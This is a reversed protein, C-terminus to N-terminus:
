RLVCDVHIDLTLGSSVAIAQLFTQNAPERMVQQIYSCAPSRNIHSLFPNKISEINPLHAGCNFCTVGYPADSFVFM